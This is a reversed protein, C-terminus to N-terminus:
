NSLDRALLEFAASPQSGSTSLEIIQATLHSLNDTSGRGSLKRKSAIALILDISPQLRHSFAGTM